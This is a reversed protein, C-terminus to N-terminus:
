TIKVSCQFKVVAVSHHFSANHGTEMMRNRNKWQWKATAMETCWQWQTDKQQKRSYRFLIKKCLKKCFLPIKCHCFPSVAVSSRCCFPPFWACTRCTLLQFNAHLYLVLARCHAASAASLVGTIFSGQKNYM